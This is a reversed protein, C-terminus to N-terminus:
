FGYWISVLFFFFLFQSNHTHKEKKLNTNQAFLSVHEFKSGQQFHVNSWIVWIRGYPSHIFGFYQVTNGKKRTEFHIRNLSRILLLRKRWGRSRQDFSKSYIFHVRTWLIASIEIIKPSHLWKKNRCLHHSLSIEVPNAKSFFYKACNPNLSFVIEYTRFGMEARWLYM